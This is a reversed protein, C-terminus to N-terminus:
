EYKVIFRHGRTWEPDVLYPLARFTLDPDLFVGARAAEGMSPPEGGMARLALAKRRKGELRLRRGLLLRLPGGAGALKVLGRADTVLRFDAGGDVGEAPEVRASGNGTRVRWTGLGDVELDYARPSRIRAAAAPLMMLVLRAALDPDEAAMQSLAVRTRDAM